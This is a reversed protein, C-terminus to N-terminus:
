EVLKVDSLNGAWIAVGFVTDESTFHHNDTGTETMGPQGGAPQQETVPKDNVFVAFDGKLRYKEASEDLVEGEPGYGLSPTVLLKVRDGRGKLDIAM